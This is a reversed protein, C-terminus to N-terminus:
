TDDDDRHRPKLSLQHLLSRIARAEALLSRREEEDAADIAQSARRNLQVRLYRLLEPWARHGKLLDLEAQDWQREALELPREQSPPSSSSSASSRIRCLELLRRM